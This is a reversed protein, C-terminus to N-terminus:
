VAPFEFSSCRSLSFIVFVNKFENRVRCNIKITIIKGAGILSHASAFPDRHLNSSVGHHWREYYKNKCNFELM